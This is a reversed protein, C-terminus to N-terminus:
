LAAHLAALTKFDELAPAKNAPNRLLASPHFTGLIKYGEREFVEGHQVTVKFDPDILRKASIRGLCVVIKPNIISMQQELWDACCDQEEPLPDRNQPPRCKVINAIFVDERRLGVATLYNDLMKGAQGVFPVGSEDESRGPGEGVFLITADPNGTGFVVNTRTACLPCKTCEACQQRLTELTM